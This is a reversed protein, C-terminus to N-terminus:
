QTITQVSLVSGAKGNVAGASWITYTKGNDLRINPINILTKASGHMRLILNYTGAKIETYSGITGFSISSAIAPGSSVVLDASSVGASMNAFKIKANGFSPISLDDEAIVTTTANNLEYVFFTYSSDRVLNVTNTALLKNSANAKVQVARVGSTLKQYGTSNGYVLPVTNIKSGTVYVDIAAANVASNISLIHSNGLDTESVIRDKCSSLVLIFLSFLILSAPKLYQKYLKM